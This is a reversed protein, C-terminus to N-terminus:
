LIALCLSRGLYGFIRQLDRQLVEFVVELFSFLLSKKHDMFYWLPFQGIQKVACADHTLSCSCHVSLADIVWM